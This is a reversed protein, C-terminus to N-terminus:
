VQVQRFIGYMASVLALAVFGVLLGVFILTAPEFITTFRKVKYDLERDFYSAATALQDDLTGTTEGVRFMQRATAPFLGTQALPRAIGEGRFMAAEVQDLGVRFRANNVAAKTVALAEPLPVGAGLMSSMVRCFRELLAHQIVDGLVPIALLWRDLVARGRRSRWSLIVAAIVLLVGGVIAFWWATIGHTTALLMRTTLPLRAGLGDFFHEFRPLVFTTLVVVVLIAFGVVIGPYALAALVKRRAELDREIYEALRGLTVDLNGTLEASRLIGRYYSPFVDPFRDTANSFTEGSRLDDAISALVHQFRKNSMEESIGALAELIPIGAKVFVAMQQSFHMLEKRTVRQKTLQLQWFSRKPEGPQAPGDTSGDHDQAPISVTTM